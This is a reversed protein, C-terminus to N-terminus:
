FIFKTTSLKAAKNISSCLGLNNESKTYKINNKKLYNNTGDNGDNSHVIIEHKHLSNKKISQICVKLYKLNNYTPIIISFM